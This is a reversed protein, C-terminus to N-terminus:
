SKNKSGNIIASTKKITTSVYMTVNVFTRIMTSNVEEMIRMLLGEGM